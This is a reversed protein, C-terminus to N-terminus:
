FHHTSGRYRFKGYDSDIWIVANNYLYHDSSERSTKCFAGNMTKGSTVTYAYHM